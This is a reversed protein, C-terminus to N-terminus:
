NDGNREAAWSEAEKCPTEGEDGEGGSMGYLNIVYMSSPPFFLPDDYLSFSVAKESSWFDTYLMKLVQLEPILQPTTTKHATEEYHPDGSAWLIM